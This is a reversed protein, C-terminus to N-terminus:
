NLWFTRGPWPVTQEGCVRWRSVPRGRLRWDSARLTGDLGLEDHAAGVVKPGIPEGESSSSGQFGAPCAPHCCPAAV